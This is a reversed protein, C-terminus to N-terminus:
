DDADVKLISSPKDLDLLVKLEAIRGRLLATDTADLSKNDNKRRHMDLREDLYTKIKKWLATQAEHPELKLQEMAGVIRKGV